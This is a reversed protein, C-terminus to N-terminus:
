SNCLQIKFFFVNMLCGAFYRKILTATYKNPSRLVLQLLHRGIVRCSRLYHFGNGPSNGKDSCFIDVSILVENM